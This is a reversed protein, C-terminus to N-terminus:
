GTLKWKRIDAITEPLSLFEKTDIIFSLVVYFTNTVRSVRVHVATSAVRSAGENPHRKNKGVLCQNKVIAQTNPLPQSRRCWCCPSWVTGIGGSIQRSVGDVGVVLLVVLVLCLCCGELGEIVAGVGCCVM